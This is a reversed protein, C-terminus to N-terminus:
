VKPGFGWCPVQGAKRTKKCNGSGRKTLSFSRYIWMWRAWAFRVVKRPFLFCRVRPLTMPSATSSSTGARKAPEKGSGPLRRARPRRLLVGQTSGLPGSESESEGPGDSDWWIVLALGRTSRRYDVSTPGVSTSGGGTLTLPPAKDPEKKQGHSQEVLLFFVSFCVSPLLAIARM